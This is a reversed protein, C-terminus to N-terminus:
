LGRFLAHETLDLLDKILMLVFCWVMELQVCVYFGGVWFSVSLSLCFVKYSRFKRPRCSAAYLLENDVIVCSEELKAKDSLDITEMDADSIDSVSDDVIGTLLMQFDPVMHYM